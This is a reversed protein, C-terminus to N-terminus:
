EIDNVLESLVLYLEKTESMSLTIGRKYINERVSFTRIDLDPIDTKKNKWVVLQVRKVFNKSTTPIEKIIRLVKMYENEFVINDSTIDLFLDTLDM